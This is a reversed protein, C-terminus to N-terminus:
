SILSMQNKNYYVYVRVSDLTKDGKISKPQLKMLSPVKDINLSEKILKINELVFPCSADIVRFGELLKRKNDSISHATIVLTDKEKNLNKIDDFSIIKAGMENIHNIVHTNHVLEGLIYVNNNISLEDEVMKIARKVGACAGYYSALKIM